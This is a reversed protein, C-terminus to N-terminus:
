FDYSEYTCEFSELITIYPNPETTISLCCDSFTKGYFNNTYMNMLINYADSIRYKGICYMTTMFNKNFPFTIDTDKFLEINFSPKIITKPVIPFIRDVNTLVVNASIYQLTCMLLYVHMNDSNIKLRDAETFFLIVCDAKISELDEKKPVSLESLIVYSNPITDKINKVTAKVCELEEKGDNINSILIFINSSNNVENFKKVLPQQM